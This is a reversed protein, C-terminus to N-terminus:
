AAGFPNVSLRMQLQERYVTYERGLRSCFGGRGVINHLSARM